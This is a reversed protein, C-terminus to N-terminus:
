QRCSVQNSPACFRNWWRAPPTTDLRGRAQADRASSVSSSARMSSKSTSCSDGKRRPCFRTETRRPERGFFGGSAQSPADEGQNDDKQTARRDGRKVVVAFMGPAEADFRAIVDFDGAQLVHGARLDHLDHAAVNAAVNEENGQGGAFCARSFIGQTSDALTIRNTGLRRCSRFEHACARRM